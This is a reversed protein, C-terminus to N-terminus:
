RRFFEIEKRLAYKYLETDKKHFAVLDYYNVDKYNFIAGFANHSLLREMKVGRILKGFNDYVLIAHYKMEYLYKLVEYTSDGVKEYM